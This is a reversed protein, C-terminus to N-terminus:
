KYNTRNGTISNFIYKNKYPNATPINNLPIKNLFKLEKQNYYRQENCFNVFSVITKIIANDFFLDLIKRLFTRTQM